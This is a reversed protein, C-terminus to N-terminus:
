RVKVHQLEYGGMQVTVTSGRELLDGPNEFLLYYTQALNMRGRHSHGMFLNSVVLGNSEDILAPPTKPNHVSAARDPNMVQFRLDILGGGGTIDVQTIRVGTHAQFAPASVVRAPAAKAVQPGTASSGGLSHVVLAGLAALGAGTIVGVGRVGLSRRRRLPAAEGSM